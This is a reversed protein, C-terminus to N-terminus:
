DRRREGERYESPTCGTTKKFYTFFYSYSIFGAQDCISRVSDDTESLLRKALALRAKGVYELLAVGERRKFLDRLYSSSLGVEAAVAATGLARDSLRADIIAKGKAILDRQRREGHLLGRDKLREATSFLLAAADDLRDSSALADRFGEAGGPLFEEADAGIIQPIRSGLASVAYRFLAPDAASRLFAALADAQRAAEAADDTRFAKELRSLDLGEGAAADPAPSPESLVISGRGRLYDLRLSALLRRCADPLSDRDHTGPALYGGISAGLRTGAAAAASRLNELAASPDGGFLVLFTDESLRLVVCPGVHPSLMESFEDRFDHLASAGHEDVLSRYDDVRLAAMAAPFRLSPFLRGPPLEAFDLEGRLYASALEIRRERGSVRASLVFAAAIASLFVLFSLVVVLNRIRMVPAFVDSEKAASVFRWQLERQDAWWVIRRAGDAGRVIMSGSHEPRSRVADFLPDGFSSTSFAEADPHTLFLGDSDLIYLASVSPEDATLAERVSRESLNAIFAYRISSGERPMPGLVITFLNRPARDGEFVVRRMVYRSLGFSRVRGLFDHMGPDSAEDFGEWGSRTSLIGRQANYLYLSDIFENGVIARDIRVLGRLPKEINWDRGYLYDRIPDEEMASLFPPISGLHIRSFLKISHRLRSAENETLIRMSQSMFLSSLLFACGMTAVAVTAAIPLFITLFERRSFRRSRKPLFFAM